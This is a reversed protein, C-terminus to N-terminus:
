QNSLFKNILKKLKEENIPKEIYEDFGCTKIFYERNNISSTSIIVPINFNDLKKLKQLLNPGDYGFKYINNTIILDYKYNNKIRDIIDEASPVFEFNINFKKLISITYKISDINYDGILIKKANKKIFINKQFNMRNLERLIFDYENKQKKYNTNLINYKRYLTILLIILLLIIFFYIM